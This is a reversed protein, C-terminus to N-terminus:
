GLTTLTARQGRSNRVPLEAGAEYVFPPRAARGRRAGRFCFTALICFPSCAPFTSSFPFLDPVHMYGSSRTPEISFFFTIQIAVPLFPDTLVSRYSRIPLFKFFRSCGLFTISSDLDSHQNLFSFIIKYPCGSQRCLAVRSTERQDVKWSRAAAFQYFSRLAMACAGINLAGLRPRPDAQCSTLPVSSCYFFRNPTPEALARGVM